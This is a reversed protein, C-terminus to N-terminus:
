TTYEYKFAATSDIVIAGQSMSGVALWAQKEGHWTVDLSVDANVAFGVARKHWVMCERETGSVIPLASFPFWTMGLWAKAQVGAFWLRDGPVYDQNAFQPNLMLDSWAAPSVAHYTMGDEVGIDRELLETMIGLAYTVTPTGSPNYRAAATTANTLDTNAGASLATLILNDTKRAMAASISSSVAGREDINVKLLDLRDIYEGAYYDAVPCEVRSHVLNMIPVDGHRSKTGATGAAIKQFYTSEGNLPSSNRVLGRFKSGRRQYALHVESEFQKIFSVDITDSM